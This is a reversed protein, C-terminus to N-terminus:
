LTKGLAPNVLLQLERRVVRVQVRGVQVALHLLVLVELLLQLGVLRADVLDCEGSLSQEFLLVESFTHIIDIQKLVMELVVPEM